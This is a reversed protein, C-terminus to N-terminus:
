GYRDLNYGFVDCKGDGVTEALAAQLSHLDEPPALSYVICSDQKILHELPGCVAVKGLQSVEHPCRFAPPFVKVTVFSRSGIHNDHIFHWNLHRVCRTRTTGYRHDPHYITLIAPFTCTFIYTSM